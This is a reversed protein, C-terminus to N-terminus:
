EAADARIVGGGVLIFPRVSHEILGIVEQMTEESIQDSKRKIPALVKYEYEAEAGTVDKPIDVLVPGPRGTQAVAIARRITDALKNVDKVIFNHKTM